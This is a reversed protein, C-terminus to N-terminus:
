QPFLPVKHFSLSNDNYSLEVTNSGESCKRGLENKEDKM